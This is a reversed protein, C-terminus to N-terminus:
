GSFVPPGGRPWISAGFRSPLGLVVPSFICILLVHYGVAVVPIFWSAGQVSQGWGWLFSFFL